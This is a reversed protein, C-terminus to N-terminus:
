KVFKTIIDHTYIWYGAFGLIAVAVGLRILGSLIKLAVILVVAAILVTVITSTSM